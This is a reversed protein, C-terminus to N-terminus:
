LQTQTLLQNFRVNLLDEHLCVTMSVTMAINNLLGESNESGNGSCESVQCKMTQGLVRSAQWGAMTFCFFTVTSSKLSSVVPKM